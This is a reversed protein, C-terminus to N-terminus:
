CSLQLTKEVQRRGAAAARVAAAGDGGCPWGAAVRRYRIKELRRRGGCGRHTSGGGRAPQSSAIAGIAHALTGINAGIGAVAATLTAVKGGIIALPAHLIAAILLGDAHVVTSFEARTEGVTAALLARLALFGQAVMSVLNAVLKAIVVVVVVEKIIKPGVVRVRVVLEM